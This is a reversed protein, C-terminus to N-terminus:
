CYHRWPIENDSIFRLYTSFTIVTLVMEHLLHIYADKMAKRSCDIDTCAMCSVRM